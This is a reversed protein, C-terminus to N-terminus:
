ADDRTPLGTGDVRMCAADPSEEELLGACSVDGVLAVEIM